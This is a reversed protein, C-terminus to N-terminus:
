DEIGEHPSKLELVQKEFPGALKDSHIVVVALTKDLFAAHSLWVRDEGKVWECITKTSRQVRWGDSTLISTWLGSLEEFDSLPDRSITYSALSGSKSWQKQFPIPLSLREEIPICTYSTVAAVRHEKITGFLVIVFFCVICGVLFRYVNKM